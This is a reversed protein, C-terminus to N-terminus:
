WYTIGYLVAFVSAELNVTSGELFIGAVCKTVERHNQSYTCIWMETDLRWLRSSALDARL